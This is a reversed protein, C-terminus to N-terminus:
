FDPMHGQGRGHRQGHGYGQGRRHDHSHQLMKNQLYHIKRILTCLKIFIRTNSTYYIYLGGHVYGRGHHHIHGRGHSLGHGHGPQLIKNNYFTCLHQNIYM